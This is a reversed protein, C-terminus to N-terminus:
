QTSLRRAILHDDFQDLDAIRERSSPYPSCRHCKANHRQCTHHTKESSARTRKFDRMWGADIVGIAMRGIQTIVKQAVATALTSANHTMTAIAEMFGLTTFFAIVAGLM